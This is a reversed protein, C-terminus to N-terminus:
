THASFSGLLKDMSPDVGRNMARVPGINLEIVLFRYNTSPPQQSAELFGVNRETLITVQETGSTRSRRAYELPLGVSGPTSLRGADPIKRMAELMADQGSEMLEVLVRDYEADTTWRDIRIEVPVTGTVGVTRVALATYRAPADRPSSSVPQDQAAARPTAALPALAAALVVAVLPAGISRLVPGAM